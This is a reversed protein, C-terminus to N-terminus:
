ATVVGRRLQEVKYATEIYEAFRDYITIRSDNKRVTVEEGELFYSGNKECIDFSYTIWHGDDEVEEINCAYYGSWAAM